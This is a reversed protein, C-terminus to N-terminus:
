VTATGPRREFCILAYALIKPDPVSGMESYGDQQKQQEQQRTTRIKTEYTTASIIFV